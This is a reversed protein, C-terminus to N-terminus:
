DRRRQALHDVHGILKQVRGNWDSTLRVRLQCIASRYADASRLVDRVARALDDASNDTYRVGRDFHARTAMTDSLILPRQAAIGEYAGCVLCDERTTLDMVVDAAQLLAVYESEPVFGTFVVNPPAIAELEGRRQKPNGTVYVTVAPDLQRAAKIVERYPEDSAFTCIFLVKYRGTLKMRPPVPRFDPIRDPLVFPHGGASTVMSALRDNTVITLDARRVVLRYLAGLPSRASRALPALAVNHADVVVQIGRLRGYVLAAITLVISPNQVFVVEPRSSSFTRWTKALSMAYRVLRGRKLDFEHFPVGLASAIGENRRQHEWTIWVGRAALTATGPSRHSSVQKQVAGDISM